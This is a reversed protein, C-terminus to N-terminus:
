KNKDLLFKSNLLGVTKYVLKATIFDPGKNLSNPCLEVADFGVVERKEIVNRIIDLVEYWGLGGPEPTGVSPILSPDFVDMDCTIYVRGGLKKIIDETCDRDRMRHAFFVTGKYKEKILDAEEDSLSRIGVQVADAHERIRGMVCAHNFRSGEYEGRLDAHADLQLVTLDKYFEKLALFFGVSVSHEGGLIIPFKKDKLIRTCAAKVREVMVEPADEIVLPDLTAIGAEAPNSDTEEDYLEMNCSAEIIAEPGKATGEIYTTTKEYPVPLIVFRANKYDSFDSHLCGFSKDM